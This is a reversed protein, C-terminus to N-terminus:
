LNILQKLVYENRGFKRQNFMIKTKPSLPAKFTISTKSIKKVVGFNTNDGVDFQAVLKMIEKIHKNMQTKMIQIKHNRGPPPKNNLRDTRSQGM